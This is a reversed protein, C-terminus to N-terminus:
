EFTYPVTVLKVPSGDWDPSYMLIYINDDDHMTGYMQGGAAVPTLQIYGGFPPVGNLTSLNYFRLTEGSTLVNGYNSYPSPLATLDYGVGGRIAAGEDLANSMTGPGYRGTRTVSQYVGTFDADFLASSAGDVKVVGVGDVAVYASNGDCTVSLADGSLTVAAPASTVTACRMLDLTSNEIYYLQGDETIACNTGNIGAGVLGSDLSGAVEFGSGTMQYFVIGTDTALLMKPVGADSWMAVVRIVDLSLEDSLDIMSWSILDTTFAVVGTYNHALYGGAVSANLIRQAPDSLTTDTVVPTGTTATILGGGDDIDVDVEVLPTVDPIVNGDSDRWVGGYSWVPIILTSDFYADGDVLAPPRSVTPFVNLPIGNEAGVIPNAPDTDDVTIRSGAVVSEVVGFGSGHASVIPNAPDTDDVTVNDGAVISEVSGSGGGTSSVIPNAPDTADVTVNDGAVISQVVGPIGQPGQPGVEGRLSGLYTVTVHTADTVITVRGYNTDDSQDSVLDGVQPRRNPDSDVPLVVPTSGSSAIPTVTSWWSLGEIGRLSGLTTVVAHTDDVLATVQGYRTMDSTDSVMDGVLIPRLEDFPIIEVETTGTPNLATDTKRWSYGAVAHEEIYDGAYALWSDLYALLATRWDNWYKTWMAIWPFFVSRFWARWWDLIRDRNEADAPAWPSGFGVEPPPLPVGLEPPNPPDVPEPPQPPDFPPM